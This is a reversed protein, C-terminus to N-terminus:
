EGEHVHAADVIQRCTRILEARLAYSRESFVRQKRAYEARGEPTEVKVPEHGLHRVDYPSAAMDLIRIERALEFTSMVLSSSVAPTLKGAWKYLDMNAHLCGAQDLQPQTERTPQLSNLPCAPTTFFRFADYHSCRVGVEDVVAMTQEKSFRLPLQPHRTQHPELGYVMAWEHMGFCGHFERNSTIATELELAQKVTNSRHRWFDDIALEAVGDIVKYYRQEAYEPADALRVGIGPHWTFMQGPRLRYYEFLFDEIPHKEAHSKRAVVADLLEHARQEHAAALPEWQARTLTEVM